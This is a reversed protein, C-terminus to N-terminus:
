PICSIPSSVAHGVERLEQSSYLGLSLVREDTRRWGSRVDASRRRGERSSTSSDMTTDGTRTRLGIADVATRQDKPM